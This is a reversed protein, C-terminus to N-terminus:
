ITVKLLRAHASSLIIKEVCAPVFITEGMQLEYQVTDSACVQAKGEVCMLVVFQENLQFEFNQSQTLYVYDTKFYATHLLEQAGTRDPHYNIQYDYSVDFDIADIAFDTHLERYHGHKDKRKWDYIRYTIDSTQQIEALLVGEGIAHVLGPKIYFVDGPEVEIHQLYDVLTGNELYKQYREPTLKEQFDAIIFAKPDAAIVYWMETKGFSNHRKEALIDDPHLQVSLRQAADIFKFLIPFHHGFRDISSQGLMEIPFRDILESLTTNTYVGESVVSVSEPVESIEWSEGIANAETDKHLQTKLKQGGWIKEKLIPKFKLLSPKPKDM